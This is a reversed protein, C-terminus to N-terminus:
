TKSVYKTKIMQMPPSKPITMFWAKKKEFRTTTKESTEATVDEDKDKEKDVEKIIDDEERDERAQDNINNIFSTDFEFGEHTAYKVGEDDQEFEIEVNEGESEWDDIFVNDLDILCDLKDSEIEIEKVVESEVQKGKGKDGEVEGSGSEGQTEQITSDDAQSASPM